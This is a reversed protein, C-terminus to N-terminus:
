ECSLEGLSCVDDDCSRPLNNSAESIVISGHINSNKITLVLNRYLTEPRSVSRAFKISAVSCM